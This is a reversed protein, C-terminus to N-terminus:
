QNVSLFRGCGRYLVYGWAFGGTFCLICNGQNDNKREGQKKNKTGTKGQRFITRNGETKGTL